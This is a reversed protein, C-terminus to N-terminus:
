NGEIYPKLIEMVRDVAGQNQKVFQRARRGMQERKRKQGLLEAMVHFLESEGAVMIGGGYGILLRSMTTFNHTHPGFIVPMGFSAPELLNHGGIPALSGGVFAVDALGYVQGLEGLTNLIFVNYEPDEVPLETKRIARFGLDKALYYVEDFRRAERPGIILSLDPFSKLLQGFVNLVIKEEPHHTSGAVWIRGDKRSLLRLWRDREQDNLPRWQRDFKINGTVKVKRTAIGGKIIRDKDLETQMLCLEILRLVKKILFRWRVYSKGTRPSVRGNVLVTRVGREKLTSILGPWIDTEVLIFITPRISNIMRRVSWWLDLPMPLLYDVKDKVREEAVEIGSATKVSLVIERSPYRNRLAELLPIVSLLEGVSLAHVWLRGVGPNGLDPLNLGLAEKLRSKNRVLYVPLSLILVITTLVHYLIFM